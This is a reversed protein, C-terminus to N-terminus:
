ILVQIANETVKTKLHGAKRVIIQSDATFLKAPCIFSNVPLSGGAFDNNNIAIADESRQSTIQCLLLDNGRLRALVLAPRRKAASLDSFPFPFIVVDGKVFREM